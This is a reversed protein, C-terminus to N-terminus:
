VKWVDITKKAQMVVRIWNPDDLVKEDGWEKQHINDEYSNLIKRFRAMEKLTKKDMNKNRWEAIFDDFCNDDLMNIDEYYSSVKNPNLGLWNKRQDDINSFDRILNYINDIWYSEM